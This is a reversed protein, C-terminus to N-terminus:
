KVKICRLLALPLSPHCRSSSETWGGLLFEFTMYIELFYAFWSMDEECM